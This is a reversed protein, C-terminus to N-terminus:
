TFNELFNNEFSGHFNYLFNNEFSRQFNESKRLFNNRLFTNLLMLCHNFPPQTERYFDKSNHDSIDSLSKSNTENRKLPELWHRRRLWNLNISNELLIAYM